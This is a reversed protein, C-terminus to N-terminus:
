KKTVNPPERVKKECKITVDECQTTGVYCIITIKDCKKTGKKKKIKEWM